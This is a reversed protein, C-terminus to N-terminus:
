PLREGRDAHTAPLQGQDRGVGGLSGVLRDRQRWAMCVLQWDGAGSGGGARLLLSSWVAVSRWAWLWGEAPRAWAAATLERGAASRPSPAGLLMLSPRFAARVRALGHRHCGRLAAAATAPKASSATASVNRNRGAIFVGAGDLREFACSEVVVGETGEIHVAGGDVAAPM